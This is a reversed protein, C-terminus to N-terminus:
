RLVVLRAVAQGGRAQVRVFYLGSSISGGADTAENWGIDHFGREMTGKALTRVVRGAVDYVSVTVPGATPLGYRIAAAGPGLPAATIEIHGPVGVPSAATGGGARTPDVGAQGELSVWAASGASTSDGSRLRYRVRLTDGSGLLMPSNTWRTSDVDSVETPRSLTVHEIAFQRANDAPDCVRTGLSIPRWTQGFDLREYRRGCAVQAQDTTIAVAVTDTMTNTNLVINSGKVSSSSDRVCWLLLAGGSSDPNWSLHYREAVSDSSAEAGLTM